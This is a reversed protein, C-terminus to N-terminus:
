AVRFLASGGGVGRQMASDCVTAAFLKSVLVSDLFDPIFAHRVNM